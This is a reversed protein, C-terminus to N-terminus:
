DILSRLKLKYDAKETRLIKKIKRIEQLAAFEGAAAAKRYWRLARPYQKHETYLNGMVQLAYTSGGNIAKKIWYYAKDFNGSYTIMLGLNAMADVYGLKSARFYCEEAKEFNQNFFYLNGLQNLSDTDGMEVAKEFFEIAKQIHNRIADAEVYYNALELVSKLDTCSEAKDVWFKAAKRNKYHVKYIGSLNMMATVDGLEAARKYWDLAPAYDNQTEYIYGLNNIAVVNNFEAAKKFWYVAKEVDQKIGHEGDFYLNGCATMAPVIGAEAAKLYYKLATVKDGMESFDQAIEYNKKDNESYRHYM